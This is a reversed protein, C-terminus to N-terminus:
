PPQPTEREPAMGFGGPPTGTNGPPVPHDGSTGELVLWQAIRLEGGKRGAPASRAARVSVRTGKGLMETRHRLGVRAEM